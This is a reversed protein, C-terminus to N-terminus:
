NGSREDNMKREVMVGGDCFAGCRRSKTGEEVEGGKDKTVCGWSWLKFSILAWDTGSYYGQIGTVRQYVKM